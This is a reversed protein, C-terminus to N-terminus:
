KYRIKELWCIMKSRCLSLSLICWKSGIIIHQNSISGGLQRITHADMWLKLYLKKKRFNYSNWTTIYYIIVRGKKNRKEKKTNRKKGTEIQIYGECRKGKAGWCGLFRDHVFWSTDYKKFLLHIQVIIM